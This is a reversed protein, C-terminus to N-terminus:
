QNLYGRINRLAENNTSVLTYEYAPGDGIDHGIKLEFVVGSTIVMEVDSTRFTEVASTSLYLELNDGNNDEKVFFRFEEGDNQGDEDLYRIRDIKGVTRAVSSEVIPYSTLMVTETIMHESIIEYQIEEVVPNDKGCVSLMLIALMMMVITVRAKWM